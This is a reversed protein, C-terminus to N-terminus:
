FSPPHTHRGRGHTKDRVRGSGESSGSQASPPTPRDVLNQM